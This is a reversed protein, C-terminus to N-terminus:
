KWPGDKKMVYWLYGLFGGAGLVAGTIFLGIDRM